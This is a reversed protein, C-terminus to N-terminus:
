WWATFSTAMIAASLQALDGRLREQRVAVHALDGRTRVVRM